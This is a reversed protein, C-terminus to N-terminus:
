PLPTRPVLLVYDIDQLVLSTVALLTFCFSLSLLTVVGHWKPALAAGGLFVKGCSRHFWFGYQIHLCGAGKTPRELMLFDLWSCCM